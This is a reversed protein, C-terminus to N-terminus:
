ILEYPLYAELIRVGPDCLNEKRAAQYNLTIKLTGSKSTSASNVTSWRAELGLQKGESDEDTIGVRLIRDDLGRYCIAYNTGQAIIQSTVNVSNEYFEITSSYDRFQGSTPERLFITDQELPDSGGLGDPDYFEVTQSQSTDALLTFTMLFRNAEVTGRDIPPFDPPTAGEDDANCGQMLFIM